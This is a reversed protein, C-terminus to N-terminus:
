LNNKVFYKVRFDLLSRNIVISKGLNVLDLENNKKLMELYWICRLQCMQDGINPDNIEKSSKFVDFNSKALDIFFQYQSSFNIENVYPNELLNFNIKNSFKFKSLNKM